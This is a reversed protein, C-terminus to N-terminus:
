SKVSKRLSHKGPQKGRKRLAQLFELKSKLDTLEQRKEPSLTGRRHRHPRKETARELVPIIEVNEEATEKEPADEMVEEEEKGEETDPLPLEYEKSIDIMPNTVAVEEDDDESRNDEPHFSLSTTPREITAPEVEEREAESSIGEDPVEEPNTEIVDETNDEVPLDLQPPSEIEGDNSDPTFDTDQDAVEETEVERPESGESQPRHRVAAELRHVDQTYDFTYLSDDHSGRRVWDLTRRQEPSLPTPTPPRSAEQIKPVGPDSVEDVDTTTVGSSGTTLTIITGRQWRPRLVWVWLVLLRLTIIFFSFTLGRRIKSWTRPDWQFQM